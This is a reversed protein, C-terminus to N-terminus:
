RSVYGIFGARYETTTGSLSTDLNVRKIGSALEIEYLQKYLDRKKEFLENFGGLSLDLYILYLSLYDCAFLFTEPNTIVDLLVESNSEDVSIGRESLVIELDHGLMDIAMDIKDQWSLDTNAEVWGTFDGTSTVTKITVAGTTDTLTAGNGETCDFSYLLTATAYLDIQIIYKATPLTIKSDAVNVTATTLDNYTLIAKSCTPYGTTAFYATTGAAVYVSWRVTYGALKQIEKEHRALTASTTLAATALEYRARM